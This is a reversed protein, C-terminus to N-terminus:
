KKIKNEGKALSLGDVLCQGNANFHLIHLVNQHSQLRVDFQFLQLMFYWAAHIKYKFDRQVVIEAVLEGVINLIHVTQAVIQGGLIHDICLNAIIQCNRHADFM